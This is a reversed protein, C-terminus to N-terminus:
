RRDPPPRRGATSMGLLGYLPCIGVIATLLPLVGLYGWAGIEGAFALAMLVLGISSRLARDLPSENPELASSLQQHTRM